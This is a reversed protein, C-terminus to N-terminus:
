FPMFQGPTLVEGSIRIKYISGKYWSVNNRRVGISMEGSVSPKFEVNGELEFKGNIYNKMGGDKDLTLAVHYWKGIPHILKPDILTKQSEGSLIFTDLYWQGEATTRTEILMRDSNIEGIHLFRQEEPGKFDPKILVEVTFFRLDKLPNDPLHISDNEGNFWVSNGYPSSLIKPNGTIAIDKRGSLLDAVNNEWIVKNTPSISSKESVM